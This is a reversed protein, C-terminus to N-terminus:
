SLCSKDHLWLLLSRKVHSTLMNNECVPDASLLHQMGHSCDSYQMKKSLGERWGPIFITVPLGSLFVM